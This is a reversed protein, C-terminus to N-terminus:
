VRIGFRCLFWAIAFSMTMSIAFVALMFGLSAWFSFFIPPMNVYISGAYLMTVAVTVISILPFQVLYPVFLYSSWRPPRVYRCLRDAIWKLVHFCAVGYVVRLVIDVAPFVPQGYDNLWARAVYAVAVIALAAIPNVQKGYLRMGITMCVFALSITQLIHHSLLRVDPPFMILLLCCVWTGSVGRRDLSALLPGAFAYAVFFWLNTEYIASYFHHRLSQPEGGKALTFMIDFVALCAAAITLKVLNSPMTARSNALMRGKLSAGAVLFFGVAGFDRLLQAWVVWIREDLFEFRVFVTHNFLISSFFAVRLWGSVARERSADFPKV